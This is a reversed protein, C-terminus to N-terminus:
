RGTTTSSATESTDSAIRGHHRRRVARGGPGVGVGGVAGAAEEEEEEEVISSNQIWARIRDKKSRRDVTTEIGYAVLTSLLNNKDELSSHFSYMSPCLTEDEREEERDNAGKALWRDEMYKPLEALNAPRKDARPELYKRFWRQAKSSLLKFLKPRRVTQMMGSSGHWYLYRSYRPDELAAKQWPLCGTLCVFM